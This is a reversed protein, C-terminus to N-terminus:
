HPCSLLLAQSFHFGPMPGSPGQPGDTGPLSRWAHPYGLPTQLRHARDATLSPAARLDPAVWLVDQTLMAGEPRVCACRRAERDKGGGEKAAVTAVTLQWRSIVSM